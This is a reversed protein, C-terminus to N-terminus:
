RYIEKRRLSSQDRERLHSISPGRKRCFTNKGAGAKGRILAKVEEREWLLVMHEMIM